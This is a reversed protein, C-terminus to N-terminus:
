TFTILYEPYCQHDLFIVFISPNGMHDVLSDFLLGPNNPDNRSPPAKMGRGGITFTGVLVRAVYMYRYGSRGAQSYRLSYSADRAFYVGNGYVVGSLFRYNFICKLPNLVQLLFLRPKAAYSSFIITRSACM